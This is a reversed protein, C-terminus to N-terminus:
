EDVLRRRVALFVPVSLLQMLTSFLVLAWVSQGYLVGMVASGLFWMIGYGTNFIGYASGRREAPIMGAIAAKLISEQAGMGAGWLAMGALVTRFGGLYLLPPSAASLVAALVLTPIGVRDYMRGFLLATLASVGMSAAYLVPILAEPAVATRKLHYAILAFDSYGAGLLGAALLYLWFMRPWGHTAIEPQSKEFIQPHPYTSRAMLLTVLALGAPLALWAFADRASRTRALVGAVILPGVLAGIQDMAEHLGFARGPGVEASALSLMADRSPTRIAKGTREVLILAAAIEWRGALALLPVAALNVGYGLITLAWYAHTRDALYGSALRLAQGILEGAGAVFGVVAASAGLTGLFPGTFSRAGEYTVDAFLSVAGLFIVFRLAASPM